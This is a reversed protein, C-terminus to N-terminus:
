APPHPPEDVQDLSAEEQKLSQAKRKLSNVYDDMSDGLTSASPAPPTTQASSAQSSSSAGFATGESKRQRLARAQAQLQSFYESETIAAVQQGVKDHDIEIEIRLLSKMQQYVARGYDSKNFRDLLVVGGSALFLAMAPPILPIWGGWLLLGYCAGYLVLILITAGIAYTVPRSVKWAFIAGGLGWVVIWLSEGLTPWSWMLPRNDLVASILQSASQAHVVVGPMKQSDRLGGSFPTYFDDKAEPTTAGILVIRDRIQESSVRGELVDNLSVQPFADRAARYNLLIQYGRDDVGQYGGVNPTLRTLRVNGLTLDGQPTQGLAANDETALYRLALQFGLSLLQTNPTACLHKGVAPSNEPPAAVLLSRRLTGGQDVVLDSFGVRDDPTQDPPPVGPTEASSIKCVPFIREDSAIQQLLAPQGEGIPVDRFVDLGIARPDAALLVTLLEAITSDQIPWERRTQIDTEDIGVILFREDLSSAPRSRLVQDYAGLELSQLAGLTRLGLVLVSAGLTSLIVPHGLRGTWNLITQLWPPLTKPTTPSLKAM